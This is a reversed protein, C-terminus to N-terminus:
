DTPDTDGGAGKLGGEPPPTPADVTGAMVYPRLGVLWEKPRLGVLPGHLRERHRARARARTM